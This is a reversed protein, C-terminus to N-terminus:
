EVEHSDLDDFDIVIEDPADTTLPKGSSTNQNSTVEALRGNEERMLNELQEASLAEMQPLKDKSTIGGIHNNSKSEKIKKKQRKISAELDLDKSSLYKKSVPNANHIM